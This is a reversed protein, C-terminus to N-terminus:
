ENVGLLTSLEDKIALAEDRRAYAEAREGPSKIPSPANLGDQGDKTRQWALTHVWFEINRLLHEVAGWGMERRTRSEPPLQGWLVALRAADEIESADELDPLDIGYFQRFDAM